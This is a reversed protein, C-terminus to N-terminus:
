SQKLQMLRDLTKIMVCFTFRRDSSKKSKNDHNKLRQNTATYDSYLEHLEFTKSAM